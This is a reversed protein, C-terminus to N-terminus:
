RCYIYHKLFYKHKIYQTYRSVLVVGTNSTYFPWRSFVTTPDNKNSNIDEFRLSSSKVWDNIVVEIPFNTHAMLNLRMAVQDERNEINTIKIRADSYMEEMTIAKRRCEREKRNNWKDVIKGTARYREKGKLVKLEYQYYASKEEEPFYRQIEEALKEMEVYSMKNMRFNIFYDRILDLIVTRERQNLKKASKDTSETLAKRVLSKNVSIISLLSFKDNSAPTQPLIAPSQLSSQNIADTPLKKAKFKLLDDTFDAFLGVEQNCFMKSFHIDTLKMLQLENVGCDVCKDYYAQANLPNIEFLLEYLKSNFDSPAECIVFQSEYSDNEEDTDM